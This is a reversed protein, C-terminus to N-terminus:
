LHNNIVKFSLNLAAIGKIGYVRFDKIEFTRPLSKIIDELKVKGKHTTAADGFIVHYEGDFDPEDAQFIHIGNVYVKVRNSYLECTFTLNEENAYHLPNSFGMMERNGGTGGHVSMNYYKDGKRVMLKEFIDIERYRKDGEADKKFLWFSFWSGPYSNSTNVTASIVQGPSVLFRSTVNGSSTPRKVEKGNWDKGTADEPTTHIVMSNKGMESKITVNEGVHVSLNDPRASGWENWVTAKWNDLSKFDEVFLPKGYKKELHDIIAPYEVKEKKYDRTFRYLLIYNRIKFRVKNM